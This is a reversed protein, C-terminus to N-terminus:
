NKISEKIKIRLDRYTERTLYNTKPNQLLSQYHPMELANLIMGKERSTLEVKIEVNSYKRLERKLLEIEIGKRRLADSQKGREEILENRDKKLQKIIKLSGLLRCGLFIGIVAMGLIIILVFTKM